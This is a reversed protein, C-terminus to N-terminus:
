HDLDDDEDYDDANEEPEDVGVNWHLLRDFGDEVDEDTNHQNQPQQIHEPQEGTQGRRMANQALGSSRERSNEKHSVEV